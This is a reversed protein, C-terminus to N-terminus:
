FRVESSVFFGVLGMNGNTHAGSGAPWLQSLVGGQFVLEAIGLAKTYEAGMEMEVAPLIRNRESRDEHDGIGLPAPIILGLNRGLSTHVEKGFLLAGRANGIFSLGSNGFPRRVDIAFSPGFGNFSQGSLLYQLTNGALFSNYHQNIHAYRMGGAPLFLWQGASFAGLTAEFDWVDMILDSTFILTDTNSPIGQQQFSLVAPLGTQPGIALLPSVGAVTQALVPSGAPIPPNTVTLSPASQNFYWWRVRAGLSGEIEASLWIRPSLSYDYNFESVQRDTLTPNAVGQTRITNVAYAPDSEFRPVLILLSAGANVKWGQCSQEESNFACSPFFPENTAPPTLTNQGLVTGGHASIVGILLALSCFRIM